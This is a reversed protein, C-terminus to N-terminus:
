GALLMLNNLILYFLFVQLIKSIFSFKVILGDLIWNVSISCIIANQLRLLWFSSYSIEKIIEKSEVELGNEFCCASSSQWRSSKINKRRLLSFLRENNRTDSTKKEGCMKSTLLIFLIFM